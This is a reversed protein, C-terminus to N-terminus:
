RAEAKREERMNLVCLLDQSDKSRETQSNLLVLSSKVDRNTMKVPAGDGYSLGIHEGFDILTWGGVKIKTKTQETM